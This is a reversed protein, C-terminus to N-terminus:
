NLLVHTSSAEFVKQKGSPQYRCHHFLVLILNRIRWQKESKNWIPVMKHYLARLRFRSVFVGMPNYVYCRTCVQWRQIHSCSHWLSHRSRSRLRFQLSWHSPWVKVRSDSGVCISQRKLNPQTVPQSRTETPMKTVQTIYRPACVHEKRCVESQGRCSSGAQKMCGGCPVLACARTGQSLHADTVREPRETFLRM